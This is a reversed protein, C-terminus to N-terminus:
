DTSPLGSQQEADSGPPAKAPKSPKENKKSGPPAKAPKSDERRSHLRYSNGTSTIVESHHLFHDLIATATAAKIRRAIQRHRRVLMEDQLILEPFEAHNLHNGLPLTTKINTAPRM